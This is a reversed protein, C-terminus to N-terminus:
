MKPDGEAPLTGFFIEVLCRPRTTLAISEFDIPIERAPELGATTSDKQSFKEFSEQTKM